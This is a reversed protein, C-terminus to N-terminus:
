PGRATTRTDRRPSRARARTRRPPPGAAPVAPPHLTSARDGRASGPRRRRKVPRRTKGTPRHAKPRPVTTPVSDTGRCSSRMVAVCFGPGFSIGSPREIVAISGPNRSFGCSISSLSRSSPATRSSETSPRTTRVRAASTSATSRSRSRHTSGRFAGSPENMFSSAARRWSRRSVSGLMSKRSGGSWSRSRPSTFLANVGFATSRISGRTRSIAFSSSSPISDRPPSNSTM